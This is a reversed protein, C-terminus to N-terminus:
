LPPSAGRLPDHGRGTNSAIPGKRQQAGTPLLYPREVTSELAPRCTSMIIVLALLSYRRHHHTSDHTLGGM